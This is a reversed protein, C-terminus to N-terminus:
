KPQGRNKYEHMKQELLPFNCCRKKLVIDHPSQPSTFLKYIEASKTHIVSKINMLERFQNQLLNKYATNLEAKINVQILVDDYVPIMKNFNIVGYKGNAIKHFDKANYLKLM